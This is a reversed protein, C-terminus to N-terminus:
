RMIALARSREKPEMERRLVRIAEFGARDKELGKVLLLPRGRLLSVLIWYLKQSRQVKTENMLAHDEPIEPDIAALDEAFKADHASLWTLFQFQWERWTKLEEERTSPKWADIKMMKTLGDQRVVAAQAEAANAARETAQMVKGFVSGFAQELRQRVIQDVQRQVEQPLADPSVQGSGPQSCTRGSGCLENPQGHRWQALPGFLSVERNWFGLLIFLRGASLVVM